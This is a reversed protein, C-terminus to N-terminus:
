SKLPAFPPPRCGNASQPAQQGGGDSVQVNHPPTPDEDKTRTEDRDRYGGRDKDVPAPVNEVHSEQPHLTKTVRGAVDM